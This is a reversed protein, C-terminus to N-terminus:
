GANNLGDFIEWVRKGNQVVKSDKIEFWGTTGDEADVLIWNQGKNMAAFILKQPSLTVTNEGEPETWLQLEVLLEVENRALFDYCEQEVVAFKDDGFFKYKASIYDMQVAGVRIETIIEGEKLQADRIDAEILFIEGSLIEDM